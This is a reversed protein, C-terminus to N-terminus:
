TLPPPPMKKGRWFFFLHSIKKKETSKYEETERSYFRMSGSQKPPRKKKELLTDKSDMKQGSALDGERSLYFRSSPTYWQSTEPPPLAFLHTCEGLTPSPEISHSKLWQKKLDEKVLWLGYSKKHLDVTM